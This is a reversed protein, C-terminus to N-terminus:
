KIYPKIYSDARPLKKNPKPDERYRVWLDSWQKQIGTNTKKLGVSKLDWKRTFYRLNVHKLWRDMLIDVHDESDIGMERGHLFRFFDAALITLSVMNFLNSQNPAGWHNNPNMDDTKGFRDRVNSWFRNFVVLWKASEWYHRRDRYCGFDEWDDLIKSVDLCETAWFVAYDSKKDHYLKGNKLERFLTVLNGLVKHQLLNQPEAKDGRIGRDVLGYFSSEKDSLVLNVARSHYVGIGAAELRITVSSLEDDTLTTSTITALLAQPIPKAKQNVVIFQFVHEAPQESLLLSVPLVRSFEQRLQTRIADRPVGASLLTLMRDTVPDQPDTVDNPDISDVRRDLSKLAGLLRHQGDVLIVPTLYSLLEDRSYRLFEARSLYGEREDPSSAADILEKLLLIRSAIDSWFEDIHSETTIASALDEENASPDDDTPEEDEPASVPAEPHEITLEERLRDLLAPDVERGYLTPHRSELANKLRILLDLLSLSHLNDVSVQLTGSQLFPPHDGASDLNKAPCFNASGVADSRRAVLIPNSFVNKDNKCFTALADIRKPDAARQFGLTEADGIPTKQPIGAWRHIEIAPAAFLAIWPGNLTQRVRLAPYSYTTSSESPTTM